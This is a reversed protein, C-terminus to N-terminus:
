LVPEVNRVICWHDVSAVGLETLSTWNAPAMWVEGSALRGVSAVSQSGDNWYIIYIGNELENVESQTM